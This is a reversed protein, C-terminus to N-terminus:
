ATLWSFFEYLAFMLMLAIFLYAAGRMPRSPPPFEYACYPCEVASQPVDEMGCSPCERTPEPM